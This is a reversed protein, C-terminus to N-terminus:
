PPIIKPKYPAIRVSNEIIADYKIPHSTPPLITIFTMYKQENIKIPYECREYM